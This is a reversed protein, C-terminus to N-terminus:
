YPHKKMQERIMYAILCKWLEKMEKEDLGLKRSREQVGELVKRLRAEDDVQGGSKQKVKAIELAVTKRRAILQLLAADIEDIEARMQVIEPEKDSSKEL